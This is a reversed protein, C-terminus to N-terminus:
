DQVNQRAAKGPKAMRREAATPRNLVMVEIGAIVVGSLWLWQVSAVPHEAAISRVMGFSDAPMLQSLVWAGCVFVIAYFLGRVTLYLVTAVSFLVSAICSAIAAMM